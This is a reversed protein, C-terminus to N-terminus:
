LAGEQFHAPRLEIIQQASNRAEALNAYFEVRRMQGSSWEAINREFKPSLPDGSNGGPVQIWARPLAGLEIVFKYVAGHWGKNANVSDPSGNMQLVRSGLGPIKAVHPLQTRIHRSWAWTEPLTGFQESLDIWAALFSTTVVLSLSRATASPRHVLWQADSDQPNKELRDLLWALRAWSPSFQPREPLNVWEGFIEQRLQQMWRRYLTPLESSATDKLDWRSLKEIYIKQTPSLKKVDIQKLLIKLTWAALSDYNDNQLTILEEGSWKEQAKLLQAIRWARFPEEYDWGMYNSYAPGTARQNASHLYGQPPDISLPRASESVARVLPTGKPAPSIFRGEGVKRQPILGAHILGIHNPDACMFNQIPVNWHRFAGLCDNINKATYLERVALLERKSHHGTWNVVLGYRGERHVVPGWKTWAVKVVESAGRSTEIVEHFDTTTLTGDRSRYSNSTETLFEVEYFDTADTYGNTPGWATYNSFGNIIGPVSVLSVGYVNFQPTSLQIEYWINPLTLALHTDNALISHGTKSKSPGVAFNNSGNGRPPQPINIFERLHTQFKFDGVKEPQRRGTSPLDPFIPQAWPMPIFEPFLDLVKKTGLDLQLHSLYTDATRGSLSFTLAKAMSVVRAPDFLEPKCDLLQYELPLQSFNKLTSIYLNVGQIFPEIMGATKPEHIIEKVTRETSQRMGLRVFFRDLALGREGVLEALHGSMSRSSLDMQFLRQSAMIYGQALYLDPENQAFLHPVGATDLAVTVVQKLGPLVQDKFTVEQHSWVGSHLELFRGLAPLPGLRLCLLM